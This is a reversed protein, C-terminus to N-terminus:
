GILSRSSTFICKRSTSLPNIIFALCIVFVAGRRINCFRPFLAATDNGAAVLNELVNSMAQSFGLGLAIFFVGARRSATYDLTLYRDLITIPDWVLQKHTLSSM